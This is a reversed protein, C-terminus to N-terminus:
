ANSFQITPPTFNGTYRALGKTIRVEDMYGYFPGFAMPQNNIITVSSTQVTSATGGSYANTTRMTGDIFLRVATGSRTIAVHHWANAMEAKTIGGTYISAFADAGLTFQFANGFGGDGFRMILWGNPGGMAFHTEYGGSTNTGYIFYEVTFDGAGINFDSGSAPTFLQGFAMSVSAGGFVSQTTSITPSGSSTIIHGREDTFTTSNNAGNMHLLLVTSAWNPDAIMNSTDNIGLSVSININNVTGLTLILTEYGETAIDNALTLSLTATNSIVIFDGTLTAGSIDASTIGVGSITYPIRQGDQVGTTSLTIVAITGEDVVTPTSTLVATATSSVVSFKFAM